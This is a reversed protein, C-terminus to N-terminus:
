GGFRRRRQWSRWLGALGALGALVLLVVTPWLSRSGLTENTTLMFFAAALYTLLGFVLLWRDFGDHKGFGPPSKRRIARFRWWLIALVFLLLLVKLVTGWELGRGLLVAQFGTLLWLTWWAGRLPRVLLSDVMAIAEAHRPDRRVEHFKAAEAAHETDDRGAGASLAADANGPDIALVEKVSTLVEERAADDFPKLRRYEITARLLLADRDNPALAVAQLVAAYADGYHVLSMAELGAAQMFHVSADHPALEVARALLAKAEDWKPRSSILANGLLVVLHADDPAIAVM